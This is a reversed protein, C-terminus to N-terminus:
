TSILTVLLFDPLYFIICYLVINICYSSISHFSLFSTFYFSIMFILSWLSCLLFIDCILHLFAVIFLLHSFCWCSNSSYFLPFWFGSNSSINYPIDVIWLFIAFWYSFTLWVWSYICAISAAESQVLNQVLCVFVEFCRHYTHKFFLVLPFWVLSSLFTHHCYRMLYLICYVPFM